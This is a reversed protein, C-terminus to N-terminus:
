KDFLSIGKTLPFDKTCLKVCNTLNRIKGNVYEKGCRKICNDYGADVVDDWIDDVTDFFDEVPKNQIFPNSNILKFTTVTKLQDEVIKLNLSDIKKELTSIRLNLASDVNSTNSECSFILTVLGVLLFFKITNM